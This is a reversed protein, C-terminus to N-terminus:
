KRVPGLDDDPYHITELGPRRSGVVLLTADRTSRNVLHHANGCNAPFGAFTTADMSHVGNDDVLTVEGEIVYVFEDEAEHWHRLSSMAGPALTVLNVGFQTLGVAKALRAERKGAFREPRIPNTWTEPVGTVVPVDAVRSLRTEM